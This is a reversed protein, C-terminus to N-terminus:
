DWRFTVSVELPEPTALSSSQDNVDDYPFGYALGALSHQHWFRAYDNCPAQLYYRDASRWSLAEGLLHRNLLAAIQAGLVKELGNGQALVGSCQFVETSTPMGTILYSRPDGARTFTMRGDAEVRGTFTGEDPTLVLPEAGYKKWM